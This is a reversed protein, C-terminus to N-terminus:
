KVCGGVKKDHQFITYCDEHGETAGDDQVVIAMVGDKIDECKKYCKQSRPRDKEEMKSFDVLDDM